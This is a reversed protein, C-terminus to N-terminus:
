MSGVRFGVTDSELEPVDRWRFTSRADEEDNNWCSGRIGRKDTAVVAENWELVNGAQDFTGYFSPSGGYSGVNTLYNQSSSFSASQTVSHVGGATKINAQNTLPLPGIDNAPESNSKTPYLWYHGSPGGAGQPHYYAAKYWESESPIHYIADNERAIALGGSTAGNLFYAGDETTTLDQLGKPQGNHLWNCFRAADFWSVYTVPRSPNEIASYEYSGITGSRQIGAVNLDTAMAPNYLGYTDTAAVANLFAVYQGLTVEYKGIQFQYSVAGYSTSDSSNGGNGVTVMEIEVIGDTCNDIAESLQLSLSQINSRLVGIQRKLKRNEKKLKKSVRRDRSTGALSTDPLIPWLMSVLISIIVTIRIPHPQAYQKRSM